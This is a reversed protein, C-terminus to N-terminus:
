AARRPSDPSPGSEWLAAVEPGLRRELRERRWRPMQELIDTGREIEDGLLNGFRHRFEREAREFRQEAAVWLSVDGDEPDVEVRAFEPPDARDEDCLTWLIGPEVPMEAEQSSLTTTWKWSHAGDYDTLHHEVLEPDADLAAILAPLDPVSLILHRAQVLEGERTHEREDPWSWAARLLAGGHIALADDLDSPAGVLETLLESFDRTARPDVVPAQGLLAWSGEALPVSRAVIFRDPEPTGAPPSITELTAEEGSLACRAPLSAATEGTIRWVRIRSSALAELALDPESAEHRARALPPEGEGLDHDCVIWLDAELTEEPDPGALGFAEPDGYLEAFAGAYAEPHLEESREGIRTAARECEGVLRRATERRGLCCRKHKLGSGCPCPENRGVGM